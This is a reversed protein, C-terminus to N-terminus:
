EDKIENKIEEDTKNELNINFVNIAKELKLGGKSVYPMIEGVIEIKSDEEIQKSSKDVINNNVKVNKNEIAFQAKQRTQFFGKRVLLNDLRDKM